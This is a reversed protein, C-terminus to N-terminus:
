QNEIKGPMVGWKKQFQQKLVAWSKQFEAQNMNDLTMILADERNDTYYARRLGRQSFGYKTYLRQASFNSVRAELTVLAAKLELSKEILGNLLLEGIGQRQYGPRVALNIIHAEGAMFWIGGFGLILPRYPQLLPAEIRLSDDDYAVIYHAMPNILETKYNTPPLMTPFCLHDIEKVPEIDEWRMKRVRYSM